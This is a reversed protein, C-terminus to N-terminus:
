MINSGAAHIFVNVSLLCVICNVLLLRTSGFKWRLSLLVNQKVFTLIAYKSQFKVPTSGFNLFYLFNRTVTISCFVLRKVKLFPYIPPCLFTLQSYLLVLM